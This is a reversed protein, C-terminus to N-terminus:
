FSKMPQWDSELLILKRRPTRVLGIQYMIIKHQWLYVAHKVGKQDHLSIQCSTTNTKYTQEQVQQQHKCKPRTELETSNVKM